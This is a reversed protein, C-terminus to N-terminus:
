TYKRLLKSVNDSLIFQTISNARKITKVDDRPQWEAQAVQKPANDVSQREQSVVVRVRSIKAMSWLHMPWDPYVVTKYYTSMVVSPIM